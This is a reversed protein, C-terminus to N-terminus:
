LTPFRESFIVLKTIIYGLTSQKLLQYALIASCSGHTGSPSHPRYSFVICNELSDPVNVPFKAFEPVNVPFKAFEPVIVSFTNNENKMRAAIILRDNSIQLQTFYGCNLINKTMWHDCHANHM